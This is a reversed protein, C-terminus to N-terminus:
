MNEFIILLVILAILFPTASFLYALFSWRYKEREEKKRKSYDYLAEKQGNEMRIRKFRYSFIDFGGLQVILLLLGIGVLLAVSFTLGDIHGLLLSWLGRVSVYVIYVTLGVLFSILMRLWNERIFLKVTM